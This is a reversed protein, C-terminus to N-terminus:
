RNKKRFVGRIIEAEGRHYQGESLLVTKEGLDVIEFNEFDEKLIKEDFLMDYSKPGGSNKGLQNKNFGVLIITGGPKLWTFIKQHIEKRLNEPFHAFILVIVDFSEAQGPYDLIDCIDYQFTVKNKLALLEAKKKGAESYDCAFTQWNQTAAYVANRGEGECPFLIKGPSLLALQQKLYENPEEGYVYELEAYRENWFEKM